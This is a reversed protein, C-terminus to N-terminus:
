PFYHHIVSLNNMLYLYRARATVDGNRKSAFRLSDFLQHGDKRHKHITVTLRTRAHCYILNVGPNKLKQKSFQKLNEGLVAPPLKYKSSM